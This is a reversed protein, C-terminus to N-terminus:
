RLPIAAVGEQPRQREGLTDGGVGIRRCVREGEFGKPKANALVGATSEGLM